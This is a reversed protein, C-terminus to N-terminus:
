MRLDSQSPRRVANLTDRWGTVGFFGLLVGYVAIGGAILALLAAVQAVGHMNALHALAIHAALWLLGAMALAALVIRQLRRQADHDIAFGFTAAGKRILSLANSWAGLAISAAIGGAGFL